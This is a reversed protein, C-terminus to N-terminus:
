KLYYGAIVFFLGLYFMIGFYQSIGLPISDLHKLDPIFLMVLGIIFFVLSFQTKTAKDM